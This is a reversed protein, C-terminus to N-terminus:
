RRTSRGPEQGHAPRQRASMAAGTGTTGTGAPITPEQRERRVRLEDHIEAVGFVDEAVDELRRKDDRTAVFGSLTVEGYEVTVEVDDADIGSRAIREALEDRIRPDARRYGKPGKGLRQGREETWRAM